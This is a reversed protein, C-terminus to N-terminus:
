SLLSLNEECMLLITVLAESRALSIIRQKWDRSGLRNIVANQTNTLYNQQITGWALALFECFNFTHLTTKCLFKMTQM